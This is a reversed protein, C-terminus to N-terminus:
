ANIPLRVTFCSGKGPESKVDIHGGHKEVVIDWSISLGLGTGKGVPKTTFFPEFLRNCIDPTMGSGTDAIEIWVDKGNTGSRLMITGHGQIAQAANVLLNMFVQNIQGPICCVLPMPTLERVIDAKCKLESWVVNLTSELGALLDSAIM